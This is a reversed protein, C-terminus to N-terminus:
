CPDVIDIRDNWSRGDPAGNLALNRLYRNPGLTGGVDPSPGTDVVIMTAGNQANHMSSVNNRYPPNLDTPTCYYLQMGWGEFNAHQFICVWNDPCGSPDEMVSAGSDAPSRPPVLRVGPALDYSGDAQREAAPYHALFQDLPQGFVDSTADSAGPADEAQAVGDGAVFMSAAAATAVLASTIRHKRIM